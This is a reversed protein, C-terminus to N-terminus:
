RSLRRNRQRFLHLMAGVYDGNVPLEAYDVGVRKLLTSRAQDFRRSQQAFRKRWVPQGTDVWQREGTEADELAILGSAPWTAELPDKLVFAIVDHRRATILLERRYESEAALFDSLLFLITRKNTIQNIARLAAGLDTGGGGPQVTLLDRIIRLVHNRGKRPAIYHDIKDSFMVLGVKDNNSTASLALVAALEAALDRKRQVRTGFLCSASGDMVILATLEREEAYQKVYANGGTRATVNWDIDRIDDGPAYPRVSEFAIGRGKFMSHYAGAFADNVLRRTRLEILRIRKLM